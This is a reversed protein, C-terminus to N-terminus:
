HVIETQPPTMCDAVVFLSINWVFFRIPFRLFPTAYFNSLAISIDILPISLEEPLLKEPWASQNVFRISPRSSSFMETQHQCPYYRDARSKVGARLGALTWCLGLASKIFVMRLEPGSWIINVARRWINQKQRISSNLDLWSSTWSLVLNFIRQNRISTDKFQKQSFFGVM